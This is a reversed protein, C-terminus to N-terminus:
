VSLDKTLIYTRKLHHHFVCYLTLQVWPLILNKSEAPGLKIHVTNGPPSCAAEGGMLSESSWTFSCSFVCYRSKSKCCSATLTHTHRYTQTCVCPFQYQPHPTPPTHTHTYICVHLSVPVPPLLTTKDSFCFDGSIICAAQEPWLHHGPETLVRLVAFHLENLSLSWAPCSLSKFPHWM